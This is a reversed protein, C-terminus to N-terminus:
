PTGFGFAVCNTLSKVILANVECLLHTTRSAGAPGKTRKLRSRGSVCHRSRDPFLDGHGTEAEAPARLHM